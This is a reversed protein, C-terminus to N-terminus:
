ERAVPLLSFRDAQFWSEQDVLRRLELWPSESPNIAQGCKIADGINFGQGTLGGYTVCTQDLRNYVYICSGMVPDENVAVVEGDAIARVIVPDNVHINLQYHDNELLAKPTELIPSCNGYSLAIQDNKPTKPMETSANVAVQGVPSNSKDMGNQSPPELVPGFVEAQAPVEAEPKETSDNPTELGQKTESTDVEASTSEPPTVPPMPEKASSGSENQYPINSPSEQTPQSTVQQPMNEILWVLLALGVACISIYIWGKALGSLHRM